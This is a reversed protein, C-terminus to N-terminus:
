TCSEATVLMHRSVRLREGLQESLTQLALDDPAAMRIRRTRAHRSKYRLGTARLLAPLGRARQCVARATARVSATDRWPEFASRAAARLSAWVGSIRWNKAALASCGSTSSNKRM